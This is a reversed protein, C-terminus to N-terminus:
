LQALEPISLEPHEAFMRKLTQLRDLWAETEAAIPDASASLSKLAPSLAALEAQATALARAREANQREFASLETQLKEQSAHLTSLQASQVRVIRAEYAAGGLALAAIVFLASLFTRRPTPM